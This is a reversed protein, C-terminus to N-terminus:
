VNGVHERYKLNCDAITDTISSFESQDVYMLAVPYLVVSSADWNNEIAGSLIIDNGSISSLECVESARTNKNIIVIMDSLNQLNWYYTIDEYISITTLGQLSGSTVLRMPESYIAVIAPKDISYRIYNNAKAYNNVYGKLHIERRCRNFLQRRQEYLTRTASIVTEYKYDIGYTSSWDHEIDIFVVMTGWIDLDYYVDPDDTEFRYYGDLSASNGRSVVLDYIVEETPELVLPLTGKTLSCPPELDSDTINNITYQTTLYANWFSITYAINYLIFGCNIYYPSLWIRDYIHTTGFNPTLHGTYTTM